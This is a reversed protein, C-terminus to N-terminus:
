DPWGLMAFGHPPTGIVLRAKTSRSFPSVLYDLTGAGSFRFSQPIRLIVPKSATNEFLVVLVWGHNAEQLILATVYICRYQVLQFSSIM